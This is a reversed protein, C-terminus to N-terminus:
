EFNEKIVCSIADFWDIREAIKEKITEIEDLTLKRNITEKAVEQVDAIVLQYIIKKNM